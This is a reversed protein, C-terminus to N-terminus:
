KWRLNSRFGREPRTYLQVLAAVAAAWALALGAVRVRSWLLWANVHEVIQLDSLGAGNTGITRRLIPFAHLVTAAALALVIAGALLSWARGAGRRSGVSLLGFATVALVIIAPRKYSLPEIAFDAVPNFGRVSAPPNGAWLPTIVVMEYVAAGIHIGLVLVALWLILRTMM